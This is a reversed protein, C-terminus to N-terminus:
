ERIPKYWKIKGKEFADEFTKELEPTSGGYHDYWSNPYLPSPNKTVSDVAVTTTEGERIKRAFVVTRYDLLEYSCTSLTLIQDNENIDVTDIDLISRVKIQYIFNLFDSRDTFKSKTYNFLEEKENSGNTVIVAFVKWQGKQYITDFTLAPHEKYFELEKYEPLYHFMNKTSTMNHGHIVLNRTNKEVSSKYDLFLSGAKDEQRFLNKNLYFEFDDVTSQMVVYDINTNPVTLWGKVDPNVELLEKFQLLRGKDDLEQLNKGQTNDGSATSTEKLETGYTPTIADSTRNSIESHYLEKSKLIVQNTRYPLLFTENLFLFSFVIFGIICMWQLFQYPNHLRNFLTKNLVEKVSMLNWKSLKKMVHKIVIPHKKAM